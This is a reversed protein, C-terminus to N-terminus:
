VRVRDGHQAADMGGEHVLLHQGFGGQISTMMRPSPSSIRVLRTRVTAAPLQGAWFCVMLPRAKVSWVGSPVLITAVAAAGVMLSRSEISASQSMRSHDFYM